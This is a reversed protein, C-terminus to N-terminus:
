VDRYVFNVSQNFLRIIHFSVNGIYETVIKLVLDMGFILRLNIKLDSLLKM